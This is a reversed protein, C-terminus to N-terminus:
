RLLEKSRKQRVAPISRDFLHKRHRAACNAAGESPSLLGVTIGEIIASHADVADSAFSIGPLDIQVPRHKPLMREIFLQLFNITPPSGM